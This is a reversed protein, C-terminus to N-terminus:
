PSLSLRGTQRRATFLPLTQFGLCFGRLVVVPRTGHPLGAGLSDGSWSAARSGAQGATGPARAPLCLRSKHTWLVGPNTNSGPPEELEARSSCLTWSLVTPDLQLKLTLAADALHFHPPSPQATTPSPSDRGKVPLPFCYYSQFGYECTNASNLALESPCTPLWSTGALHWKHKTHSQPFLASITCPLAQAAASPSSPCWLVLAANARQRQTEAAGTLKHTCSTNVQKEFLVLHVCELIALISLYLCSKWFKLIMERHVRCGTLPSLGFKDQCRKNRSIYISTSISLQACLLTWCTKGGRNVANSQEKCHSHHPLADDTQSFHYHFSAGM